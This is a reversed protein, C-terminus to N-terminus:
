ENTPTEQEANPAPKSIKKLPQLKTKSVVGERSFEIKIPKQAGLLDDASRQTSYVPKGSVLIIRDNRQLGANAAPSDSVVHSVILSHTEADDARFALGLLVPQGKLQISIKESEESQARRITIESNSESAYVDRVFEASNKFPRGNLGLIRDGPRLGAAWAPSTSVLNRIILEGAQESQETNWSIGLRSVPLSPASEVNRRIGEHEGLSKQRFGPLDDTNALQWLIRFWHRAIKAHGEFNVKDFDDSARHYDVHKKTFPMLFPINKKLFSYHDSDPRLYWNFKARISDENTSSYLRRLGDATRSGYVEIENDTLRGIMDLNIYYKIRNLNITPNATWHKSGLLGLEEADWFAFLISRRPATKSLSVAEIYELIAAVGSGNDDAGNHIQGVTGRSNGSYGYGVHDYHAGIVIIEDALKPDSGPLLGLLNHYNKGFSQQYTEDDGAPELGFKEMLEILYVAAARSGESGAERGELADSALFAVSKKLDKIQISNIVSEM